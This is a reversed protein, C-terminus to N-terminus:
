GSCRAPHCVNTFKNITSPRKGCGDSPRHSTTLAISRQQKTGHICVRIVYGSPIVFESFFLIESGGTYNNNHNAPIFTNHHVVSSMLMGHLARATVVLAQKKLELSKTREEILSKERNIESQTQLLVELKSEITRLKEQLEEKKAHITSQARIVDQKIAAERFTLDQLVGMQHMNFEHARNALLKERAELQSLLIETRKETQQLLHMKVQHEQEIKLIGRTEHEESLRIINQERQLLDAEKDRMEQEKRMVHQEKENLHESKVELRQISTRIEKLHLTMQTEKQKLCERYATLDKAEQVNELRLRELDAAQSKIIERLRKIEDECSTISM